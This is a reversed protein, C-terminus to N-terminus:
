RQYQVRALTSTWGPAMFGNGVKKGNIFLDYVGRATVCAEARAVKKSVTFSRRFDPCRQGLTERGKIWSAKKNM